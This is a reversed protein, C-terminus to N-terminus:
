RWRISSDNTNGDGLGGFENGGWCYAKGSEIACSLGGGASISSSAQAAALAAQPVAAPLGLGVTLSILVAPLVRRLAVSLGARMVGASM